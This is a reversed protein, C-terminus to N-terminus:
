KAIEFQLPVPQIAAQIEVEADDIAKQTAALKDMQKDRSATRWETNLPGQLKDLLAIINQARDGIVSNFASTLNWGAALEKASVTGASKGNITVHYDGEALGPVKLTYLSLDLMDPLIQLAPKAAPIIPWPGSEDLRTFSLKGDQAKVDTIRCRKAEVVSGDASITASSVDGDANLGELIVTAMTYQGVTGPHVSDGTLPILAPALGSPKPKPPVPPPGGAVSIPPAPTAAEPATKPPWTGNKRALEEGRRRNLGWIDLLAHYQDVFVVNEQAALKKLAEAFSHLKQCRDSKWANLISGDDIPSSSILVPQAHIARIKAILSRMGHIYAEQTGNIDNMGLEISVITPKWAAVDYDFRALVHGTQNGGIGSNRFHLHWQPHKTRYFAEIYNTHLRQATISDGAMVWVDNDKLQLAPDEACAGALGLAAVAACSSLHRFFRSVSVPPTVM